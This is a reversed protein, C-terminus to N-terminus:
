AEGMIAENIRNAIKRGKKNLRVVRKRRNKPDPFQEVVNMGPNQYSRWECLYAINKSLTSQPLGVMENIDQHSAEQGESMAVAAFTAATQMPMEPWYERLIDVALWFRRLGELTEM